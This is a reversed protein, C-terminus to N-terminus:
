AGIGQEAGYLEATAVTVVPTGAEPGSTLLARDGAIERVTVRERLFSRPGPQTYVWTGGDPDYVVAAYPVVLEGAQDAVPEFRIGLRTIARRTLTVKQLETGDPAEVEEITAAPDGESSSESSEAACAALAVGLVAVALLKAV